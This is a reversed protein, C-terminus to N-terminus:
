RKQTQNKVLQHMMRMYSREMVDSTPQRDFGTISHLLRYYEEREGQHLLPLTELFEKDTRMWHVRWWSWYERHHPIHDIMPVDTDFVERLYRLGMDHQYTAYQALSWGLAEQVQKQASTIQQRVRSTHTPKKM